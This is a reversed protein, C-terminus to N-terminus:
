KSLAGLGALSIECLCKSPSLKGSVSGDPNVSFKRSVCGPLDEILTAEIGKKSFSLSMSQGGGGLSFSVSHVPKIALSAGGCQGKITPSDATPCIEVRCRYDSPKLPQRRLVKMGHGQRASGDGVRNTSRTPEFARLRKEKIIAEIVKANDDVNLGSVEVLHPRYSVTAHESIEHIADKIRKAEDSSSVLTSTIASRIPRLRSKSASRGGKGVVGASSRSWLKSASRGGKGVVSTASTWTKFFKAARPVVEVVSVIAVLGAAVVGVGVKGNM